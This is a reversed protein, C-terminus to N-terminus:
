KTTKPEAWLTTMLILLILGWVWFPISEKLEQNGQQSSLWVKSKLFEAREREAYVDSWDLSDSVFVEVGEALKQWGKSVLIISKEKSNPNVLSQTWGSSDRNAKLSDLGNFQLNSFQNKFVPGTLNWNEKNEPRLAGLVEEWLKSYAVTDGSLALQFSSSLLSVGIKSDGVPQIAITNQALLRQSVESEWTFPLVELGNELIKVENGETPLAKFNTGFAENISNLETRTENLNIVLVSAGQNFQEQVQATEVQSPDLVFVDISDPSLEESALATNRSLQIKELVRNGKGLLYQSLTRIEPNPFGAQMLLAMPESPLVFFHLTGLLVSDTRLEWENRGVVTATSAIELREQGSELNVSTLKQGAQFISLQGSDQDNLKVRILQKEGKRLISKFELFDIASKSKPIIWDVSKARLSYLFEKSFSNGLLIISDSNSKFDERLYSKQIGLSDMYFALEASEVGDSFVLIPSSERESTWIPNLMFLLLFLFFLSNLLKKVRKRKDSITSREIKWILILLIGLVGVGFIWAIPSSVLPDFEMM